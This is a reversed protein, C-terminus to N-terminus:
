TKKKGEKRGPTPTWGVVVGGGPNRLGEEARKSGGKRSL